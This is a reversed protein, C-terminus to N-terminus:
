CGRAVQEIRIREAIQIARPGTRIETWVLDDWGSLRETNM